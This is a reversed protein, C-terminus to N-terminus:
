QQYRQRTRQHFANSINEILYVYLYCLCVYVNIALIAFNRQNTWKNPQDSSVHANMAIFYTTEEMNERKNNRLFWQLIQIDYRQKHPSGEKWRNM